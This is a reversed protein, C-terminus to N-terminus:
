PRVKSVKTPLAAGIGDRWSWHHQSGDLLARVRTLLQESNFPKQLFERRLPAFFSPAMADATYGSCILCPIDPRDLAIAEYLERGGMRPMVSDALVFDIHAPTRQFAELADVGDACAVVRYGAEALIAATVRRVHPDDDALLVTEGGRPASSARPEPRAAQADPASRPLFVRLETGEGLTSSVEIFGGWRAVIRHVVSLGLGTGREPPKTTFFPDFMRAALEPSMGAGNDRIRLLVFEALVGSTIEREALSTSVEITGGDPMADRANICLNILVQDLEIQAGRVLIPDRARSVQLDISAPLLRRILTLSSDVADDLEFVSSDIVQHRSFALLRRTLATARRASDDIAQLSEETENLAQRRRHLLEVHGSIVLLLNNFDHAIGGALTGIAELKQAQQLQISLAREREVAHLRALNEAALADLLGQSRLMASELKGTLYSVCALTAGTVAAFVSLVRVWNTSSRLDLLHLDPLPLLGNVFQAAIAILAVETVGLAWWAARPKFVLALLVIVMMLGLFANPGRFAGHIIGGFSATAVGTYMGIGRVRSDIKALVTSCGVILWACAIFAFISWHDAVIAERLTIVFALSVAVWSFWLVVDLMRRRWAEVSAVGSEQAASTVPGHEDADGTVAGSNAV